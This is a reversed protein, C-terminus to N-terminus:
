EVLDYWILEWYEKRCSRDVILGLWPCNILDMKVLGVRPVIWNYSKSDGAWPIIREIQYVGYFPGIDITISNYELITVTQVKWWSDEWRDGVNFPILYGLVPYLGYRDKQYYVLTDARSALYLTDIPGFHWYSENNIYVWISANEGNPLITTGVVEVTVTDKVIGTLYENSLDTFITQVTVFDPKSYKERDKIVLQLSYFGSVDVVFTPNPSSSDSLVANSTLPKYNFSWIYELSESKTNSIGNLYVTDLFGVLQDNGAHAIPTPTVYLPSEEKCSITLLFTLALFLLIYILNSKM